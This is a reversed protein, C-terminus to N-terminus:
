RITVGMVPAGARWPPRTVWLFEAHTMGGYQVPSTTKIDFGEFFDIKPARGVVEIHFELKLRSSAPTPPTERLQRRIRDLSVGLREVQDTRAQAAPQSRSPPEQQAQGASAPLCMAVAWTAIASAM